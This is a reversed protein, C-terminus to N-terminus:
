DCSIGQVISPAVFDDLFLILLPGANPRLDVAALDVRDQGELGRRREIIPIDPLFEADQREILLEVLQLGIRGQLLLQNIDRVPGVVSRLDHAGLRTRRLPVHEIVHILDPQRMRADGINAALAADGRGRRHDLQGDLVIELREEALRECVLVLFVSQRQHAM